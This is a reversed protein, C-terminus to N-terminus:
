KESLVEKIHKKLSEKLVEELSYETNGNLMNENIKEFAEELAVDIFDTDEADVLKQLIDDFTMDPNEEKIEEIAENISEGLVSDGIDELKDDNLNFEDDIDDYILNDSLDKITDIGAKDYKEIFQVETIGEIYELIDSVTDIKDTTVERVPTNDFPPNNDLIIEVVDDRIKINKKNIDELHFLHYNIIGIIKETVDEVKDIIEVEYTINEGAHDHNFDIEVEDDNIDIILGPVNDQSDLEMGIYPEINKLEFVTKPVSVVRELDYEGFADEAEIEFTSTDGIELKKIEEDFKPFIQNAGVILTMPHADKPNKIEDMEMFTNIYTSDFVEGDEDKAIYNIKLFDNDKISM